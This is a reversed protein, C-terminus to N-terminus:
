VFVNAPLGQGVNTQNEVEFTGVSPPAAVGSGIFPLRVEDRANFNGTFNFQTGLIPAPPQQPTSVAVNIVPLNTQNTVEPGDRIIFIQIPQAAGPITLLNGVSDFANVFIWNGNYSVIPRQPINEPANAPAASPFSVLMDTLDLGFSFLNVPSQLFIQYAQTPLGSNFVVVSLIRFTSPIGTANNTQFNGTQTVLWDAVPFKALVQVDIDISPLLPVGTGQSFSPAIGGNNAVFADKATPGGASFPPLPPPAVLSPNVDVPVPLGQSTAPVAPYAQDAVNVLGPNNDDFTSM